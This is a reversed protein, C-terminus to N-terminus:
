PINGRHSTSIMDQAKEMFELVQDMAPKQGDTYWINKLDKSLCQKEKQSWGEWDMQINFPKEFSYNSRM